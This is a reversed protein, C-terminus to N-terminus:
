CGLSPTLHLRTPTDSLRCHPFVKVLYGALCEAQSSSPPTPFSPSATTINKALLVSSPTPPKAAEDRIEFAEWLPQADSSSVTLNLRPAFRKYIM